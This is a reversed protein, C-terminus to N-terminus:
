KTEKKNTPFGQQVLLNGMDVYDQNIEFAIWKLKNQQCVFAESATGAFPIVVTSNEDQVCADLLKQTLRVPKQTPHKIGDEIELQKARKNTYLNKTSPSYVYRESIGSGGALSPVKIM